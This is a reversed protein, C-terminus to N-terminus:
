RANLKRARAVAAAILAQRTQAGANMKLAASRAALRGTRERQERGRRLLHFEYRRRAREAAVQADEAQEPLPLMRICDVPCPPLCLECGTCWAAVVTHMQKAAGVIADVPCAQICLTCGICTTEDICAIAPTKAVGYIADICAALPDIATETM